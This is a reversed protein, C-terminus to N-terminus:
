AENKGGGFFYRLAFFVLLAVLAVALLKFILGLVAFLANVLVWAIAIAVIVGVITWVNNKTM